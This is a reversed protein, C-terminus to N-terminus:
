EDSRVDADDLQNPRCVHTVKGTRFKNDNAEPALSGEERSPSGGAASGKALRFGSAVGFRRKQLHHLISGCDAYSARSNWKPEGDEGDMSDHRHRHVHAANFPPAQGPSRRRRSCIVADTAAAM